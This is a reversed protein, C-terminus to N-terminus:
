DSLPRSKLERLHPIVDKLAAEEWHGEHGQMKVIVGPSDSEEKVIYPMPGKGLTTTTTYTLTPSSTNPHSYPPKMSSVSSVSRSTSKPRRLRAMKSFRSPPRDGSDASSVASPPGSWSEPPTWTWKARSSEPTSAASWQTHHTAVTTQTNIRSLIHQDLTQADTPLPGPIGLEIDPSSPPLIPSVTRSCPSPISPSRARAVAKGSTLVNPVPFFGVPETAPARRVPTQHTTHSRMSAARTLPREHTVITPPPSAPATQTRQHTKNKKPIIKLPPPIKPRGFFGEDVHFLSAPAVAVYPQNRRSAVSARGSEGSASPAKQPRGPHTSSPTRSHKSQSTSPGSTISRSSPVPPERNSPNSGNAVSPPATDPATSSIVEITEVLGMQGARDSSPGSCSAALSSSHAFQADGSTIDMIPQEIDVAPDSVTSVNGRSFTPNTNRSLSRVFFMDAEPSAARDFQSSVTGSGAVQPQTLVVPATLGLERINDKISKFHPVNPVARAKSQHPNQKSDQPASKKRTLNHAPPERATDSLAEPVSPRRTVSKASGQSSRSFLSSFFGKQAKAMPDTKFDAGVKTRSPASLDM